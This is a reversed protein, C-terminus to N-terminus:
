HRKSVIKSIRNIKLIFLIYKKFLVILTNKFMLINKYGKKISFELKVNKIKVDFFEFIIRIKVDLILVVYIMWSVM